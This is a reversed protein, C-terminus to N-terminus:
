LDHRLRRRHARHFSPTLLVDARVSGTAALMSAPLLARASTM